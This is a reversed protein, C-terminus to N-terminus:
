STCETLGYEKAWGSQAEAIENFRTFAAAFEAQATEEDGATAAADLKPLAEELVDIQEQNADLFETVQPVADAPPPVARLEAQGEKLIEVLQETADAIEAATTPEAVADAETLVDKCITNFQAVFAEKSLATPTPSTTTASPAASPSGGDDSGGCAVAVLCLALAALPTRPM